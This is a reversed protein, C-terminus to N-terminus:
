FGLVCNRKGSQFRYQEVFLRYDGKITLIVTKDKTVLRAWKFDIKLQFALRCNDYEILVQVVLANRLEVVWFGM